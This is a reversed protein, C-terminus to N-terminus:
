REAPGTLVPDNQNSVGDSASSTWNFPAISAISSIAFRYMKRSVPGRRDAEMVFREELSAVRRRVGDRRITYTCKRASRDAGTEDNRCDDQLVRHLAAADIGEAPIDAM